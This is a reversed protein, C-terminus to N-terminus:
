CLDDITMERIRPNRNIIITHTTTIVYEAVSPISLKGIRLHYCFAFQRTGGRLLQPLRHTLMAIPIEAAMKQKKEVIHCWKSKDLEHLPGGLHYSSEDITLTTFPLQHAYLDSITRDNFFVCSSKLTIFHCSIRHLLIQKNTNSLDSVGM